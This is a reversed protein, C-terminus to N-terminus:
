PSVLAMRKQLNQTITNLENLLKNTRDEIVEIVKPDIPVTNAIVLKKNNTGVNDSETTDM